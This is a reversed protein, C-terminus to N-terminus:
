NGRNIKGAVRCGLGRVWIKVRRGTEVGLGVGGHSSGEGSRNSYHGLRKESGLCDRHSADGPKRRASKGWKKALM